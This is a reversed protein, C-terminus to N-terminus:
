APTGPPPAPPPPQPRPNRTAPPHDRPVPRHPAALRAELPALVRRHGAPPAALGRPLHVGVVRAFHHAQRRRRVGPVAAGELSGARPPAVRLHRQLTRLLVRLGAYSGRWM